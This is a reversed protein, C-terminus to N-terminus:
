EDCREKDIPDEHCVCDYKALGENTLDDTEIILCLDHLVDTATSCANVNILMLAILLMKLKKLM